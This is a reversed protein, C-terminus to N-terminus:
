NETTIEKISKKKKLPLISHRRLKVNDITENHFTAADVTISEILGKMKEKKRTLEEFQQRIIRYNERGPAM